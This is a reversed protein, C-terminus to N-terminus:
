EVSPLLHRNAIAIGSLIAGIIGVFGQDTGCVFLNQLHTTGSWQKEPAGYVAGNEHGTFRRITCPTFTDSDVVAFRFDPIFRVASGVMRDYWALKALRYDEESLAQWAQFNALATIRIVGEGLPEDYLFNNPSCIVGSRVDVLDAPKEWHFRPSDNYFVVTQDYGVERPQANLISTTEMFSLQGAQRQAPQSTDECLRMTEVWGASSLVRRASLEEGNDLIIKQVRGAEVSMRSVGARLRLEGGLERFKRVLKKLILRVGALPRCLGEFFISRFMISFQAFDMDHERASGYFMLPCFLMELLLPDRIIGSVVERASRNAM